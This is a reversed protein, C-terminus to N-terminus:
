FFIVSVFVFLGLVFVVTFDIWGVFLDVFVFMLVLLLYCVFCFDLLSWWWLYLAVCKLVIVGVGFCFLGVSLM